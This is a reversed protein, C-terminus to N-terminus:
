FNKAAITVGIIKPAEKAAKKNSAGTSERSSAPVTDPLWTTFLLCQRHEWVPLLISFKGKCFLGANQYM